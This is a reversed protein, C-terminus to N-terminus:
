KILQVAHFQPVDGTVKQIMTSYNSVILPPQRPEQQVLEYLTVRAALSNAAQVGGSAWFAKRARIQTYEYVPRRQVSPNVDPGLAAFRLAVSRATLNM